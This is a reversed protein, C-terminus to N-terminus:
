TKHLACNDLVLVHTKRWDSSESDLQKSLEVMFNAVVVENNTGDLFQFFLKCDSTVALLISLGVLPKGVNRQSTKGRVDWSFKRNNTQQIASEDFNIIIKKQEVM